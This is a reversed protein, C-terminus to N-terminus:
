NLASTWGGDIAWTQGTIYKADDSFLHVVTMAIDKPTGFRGCPTGAALRDKESQDIRQVIPTDILGPAIANVTVGSRAYEVAVQRTLAALGGKTASYGPLGPIGRLGATSVINVISGRRRELMTPLVARIGFWSGKLNVAFMRDWDDETQELVNGPLAIGAVNALCDAPGFRATTLAVVEAWAKGNSVDLTFAAAKGGADNIEKETQDAKAIDACVVTAGEAAAHLASARGIGSGAGTILAVKGRLRM